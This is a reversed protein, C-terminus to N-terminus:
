GSAAAASTAYRNLTALYQRALETIEDIAEKRTFFDPKEDLFRSVMGLVCGDIVYSKRVITARDVRRVGRSVPM